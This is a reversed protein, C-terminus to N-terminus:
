LGALYASSPWFYTQQSSSLVKRSRRQRHASEEESSEVIGQGTKSCIAHYTTNSVPYLIHTPMVHRKHITYWYKNKDCSKIHRTVDACITSTINSSHLCFLEHDRLLPKVSVFFIYNGAWGRQMYTGNRSTPRSYNSVAITACGGRRRVAVKDYPITRYRVTHTNATNWESQATIPDITSQYGTGPVM